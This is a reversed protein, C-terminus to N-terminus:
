SYAYDPGARMTCHFIIGIAQGKELSKHFGPHHFPALAASLMAIIGTFYSFAPASFIRGSFPVAWPSV